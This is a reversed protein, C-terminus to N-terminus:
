FKQSWGSGGEPGTVNTAEQSAYSAGSILLSISPAAIRAAASRATSSQGSSGGTSDCAPQVECVM